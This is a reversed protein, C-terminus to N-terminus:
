LLKDWDPSVVLNARVSAIQVAHGREDPRQPMDALVVDQLFSRHVGRELVFPVGGWDLEVKGSARVRLKGVKGTPFKCTSSEIYGPPSPPRGAADSNPPGITPAPTSSPVRIPVADSGQPQLDSFNHIAPPPDKPVLNPMTPPFQVVYVEGYRRDTKQQSENSAQEGETALNLPNTLEQLLWAKDEERREWEERDETTQFTPKVPVSSPRRPKAKQETQAESQRMNSTTSPAPVVPDTNSDDGPESKVQIGDLEEEPYVGKWKRENRVFEVDREREKGKRRRQELDSDQPVFLGDEDPDGEDERAKRRLEAPTLLTKDTAVGVSRAVHETRDLRVPKLSWSPKFALKEQEDFDIDEEDSILNIKEIDVRPGEDGDDLDSESDIEIQDQERKVIGSDADKSTSKRSSKGANSRPKRTTSSPESATEKDKATATTKKAKSLLSTGAGFPGSARVESPRSISTNALGLGGGRGRVFSGGRNGGRPGSFGGRPRAPAEHPTSRGALRRQEEIEAQEREQQSRRIPAKPKHRMPKAPIGPMGSSFDASRSSLSSLRTVPPRTTPNITGRSTSPSIGTGQNVPSGSSKENIDTQEASEAMTEAEPDGSNHQNFQNSSRTRRGSPPDM